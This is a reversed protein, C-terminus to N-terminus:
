ERSTTRLAIGCDTCSATGHVYLALCRPCYSEADGSRKPPEEHHELGARRAADYRAATDAGPLPYALERLMTRVVPDDDGALRSAVAIPDFARMAHRTAQDVARVASPTAILMVIAHTWRHWRDGRDLHSHTRFFVFAMVANAIAFAAILIMGIQAFGFRWALTPAVVFLQGFLIWSLLRLAGTKAQVEKARADLDRWRFSDGAADCVFVARAPFLTTFALGGRDNGAWSSPRRVIARGGFPVVVAVADRRLWILCDSLYILALIVLLSQADSM